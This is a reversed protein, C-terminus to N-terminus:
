EIRQAPLCVWVDRRLPQRASLAQPLPWAPPVLLLNTATPRERTHAPSKSARSTRKQTEQAAELMKAKADLLLLRKNQQQTSHHSHSTSNACCNEQQRRGVTTATPQRRQLQSASVTLFKCASLASVAQLERIISQLSTVSQVAVATTALLALALSSPVPCTLRYM